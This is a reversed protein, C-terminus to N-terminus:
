KKVKKCQFCSRSVNGTPLKVRVLYDKLSKADRFGVFPIEQYVDRHNRDPTHLLNVNELIKRSDRLVPHYTINLSVRYPKSGKTKDLLEDRSFRKAAKVGKASGIKWSKVGFM